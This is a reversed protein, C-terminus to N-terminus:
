FKNSLYNLYSQIIVETNRTSRTDVDALYVLLEIAYDTWDIWNDSKHASQRFSLSHAWSVPIAKEYACCIASSWHAFLGIVADFRDICLVRCGLCVRNISTGGRPITALKLENLFYQKHFNVYVHLSFSFGSDFRFRSTIETDFLHRSFYCCFIKMHMVELNNTKKTLTKM